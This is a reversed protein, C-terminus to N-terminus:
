GSSHSDQRGVVYLNDIAGQRSATQSPENGKRWQQLDQAWKYTKDIYESAKLLYDQESLSAKWERIRDSQSIVKDVEEFNNPSKSLVILVIQVDVEWTDVDLTPNNKFDPSQHVQEQLNKYIQRYNQEQNEVFQQQATVIALDQESSNSFNSLSEQPQEQKAVQDASTKNLSEVKNDKEQVSSTSEVIKSSDRHHKISKGTGLVVALGTVALASLFAVEILQPPLPYAKTEKASDPKPAANVPLVAQNILLSFAVLTLLKTLRNIMVM